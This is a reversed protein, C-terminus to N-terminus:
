LAAIQEIKLIFLSVPSEEDQKHLIIAVMQRAYVM